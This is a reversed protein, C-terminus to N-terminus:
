GRQWGRGCRRRHGRRCRRRHGRRCGRRCGRGAARREDGLDEVDDGVRAEGLRRDGRAVLLRAVIADREGGFERAEPAALGGATGGSGGGGESTVDDNRRVVPAVTGDAIMGLAFAELLFEEAPLIGVVGREVVADLFAGDIPVRVSKTEEVLAFAVDTVGEAVDNLPEVADVDTGVGGNAGHAEEGAEGLLAFEDLGGRVFRGDVGVDELAGM